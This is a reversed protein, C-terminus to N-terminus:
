AALLLVGSAVLGAGIWRRLDVDEKLVWAALATEAVYSAASAPVAFSLDAIKLLAWFSFFSIAMCGVALALNRRKALAAIVRGLRGPQFSKIEGHAKMERSQLVDAMVTSAVMCALLLWRMM